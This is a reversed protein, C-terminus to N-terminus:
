DGLLLAELTKKGNTAPASVKSRDVPTLGLQSLLKSVMAAESIALSRDAREGSERARVVAMRWSAYHSCAMELIAVDTSQLWGPTEAMLSKFHDFAERTLAAEDMVDCLPLEPEGPAAVVESKPGRCGLNGDADDRAKPKRPRGAM